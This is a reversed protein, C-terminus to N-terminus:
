ACAADTGVFPLSVSGIKAVAPGHQIATKLDMTDPSQANHICRNKRFDGAIEDKRRNEHDTFLRGILGNTSAFYRVRVPGIVVATM